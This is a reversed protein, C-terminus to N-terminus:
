VVSKRDGRVWAAVDAHDLLSAMTPAARSTIDVVRGQRLVVLAPGAVDARWVRGLYLGDAALGQM